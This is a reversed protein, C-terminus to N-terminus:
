TADRDSPKNEFAYYPGHFHCTVIGTEGSRQKAVILEADLRCQRYDESETDAIYECPRHVFIIVDADQEIAGSERLDSLRPRHDDRKDAERNLQCLLLVPLDLDKALIKMERSIAAVEQERNYTSKGREPRILQLYDIILMGDQAKGCDQGHKWRRARAGIDMATMGAGDAVALGSRHIRDAAECLSRWDGGVLQGQKARDPLGPEHPVARLETWIHRETVEEPGMEANITLSPWRVGRHGVRAAFRAAGGAMASKGMRPRGAIVYLKKRQFGGILRDLPTIGSPIGVVADRRKMRDKIAEMTPGVIDRAMVYDNSSRTESADLIQREAQEVFAQEDDTEECGREAIERCTMVIRRRRGVDALIAAHQEVGYGSAWRDTLKGLGELGGVLGLQDTARLRAELTVPDISQRREHLALMAEWTARHAPHWFDETRLVPVLEIMADNRLMVGALVAAETEPNNPIRNTM